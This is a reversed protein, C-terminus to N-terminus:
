LWGNLKAFGRLQLNPRHELEEDVLALDPIRDLLREVAILAEM